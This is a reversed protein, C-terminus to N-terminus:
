LATPALMFHKLAETGVRAEVAAAEGAVQSAEQPIIVAKAAAQPCLQYLLAEVLHAPIELLQMM